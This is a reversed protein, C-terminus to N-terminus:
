KKIPKWFEVYKDWPQITWDGKGNRCVFGEFESGDDIKVKVIQPKNPMKDKVSIWDSM